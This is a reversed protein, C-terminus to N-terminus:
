EVLPMQEAEQTVDQPIQRFRQVRRILEEIRAKRSELDALMRARGEPSADLKYGALGSSSIIPVGKERLKQIALRIKRDRTDNSLNGSPATHYVAAVLARRTLGQPNNRLAEFIARELTSLEGELEALIQTYIQEPSPLM